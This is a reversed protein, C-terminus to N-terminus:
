EDEEYGQLTPAKGLESQVFVYEKKERGHGRLHHPQPNGLSYVTYAMSLSVFLVAGGRIGQVNDSFTTTLKPHDRWHDQKGFVGRRPVVPLLRRSVSGRLAQM